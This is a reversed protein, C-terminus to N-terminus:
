KNSTHLIEVKPTQSEDVMLVMTDTPDGGGGGGRVIEIYDDIDM